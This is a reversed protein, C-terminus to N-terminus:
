FDMEASLRVFRPALMTQPQLWTGGPVFAPNYTLVASSNLVNYVELGFTTRIGGFRLMKGVRLDFQNIRDGYLTGPRILNVTVNAANGALNRGLSPAVEANSATYQAALMQGPKSQMTASVQVDLRPILYTVLGRFQTLVGYAVRCYPSTPTVASANLGPGFASTGTTTTALEPVSARVACNDSVSQGTSTGGVLEFRHWMRLHLLADVGDFRQRWEGASAADIIRNNVQGVKEPVVDYLGSVVYGGGDPLRPDTPATVSFPTLDAPTLALNDVAFFNQFWRRTYSVSLWSGRGLQQQWTASLNWDSPRVGWGNVVEPGYSNTLVYQGFRANSLAGCLDGGTGRLDQSAPNSLDCDAVYNGNADTWARTVGAPGFPGTTQPLRLTPNTTAYIGSAGAGELYKGLSVRLVTRGSGTVDYAAAGRITVDKYSDVGRTAPVVIPQPLFRSPGLTQSPFWSRAWDFRVAGHLTLRGLRSQQQLYAADTGVRADNVWPSISQTLQNPVGNNVRYTLGQDNTFWTRDDTMLGHHYGVKLTHSGTAYTLVAKWVYSGAHADSFDQSRYVLNPINGNAACGNACQEVVRILGRTPNPVREFNGVGFYTGGYGAELLVRSTVPSSWTVQTVDLRRGLVGVAEPTVRQPESLGATAGTCTRCLAQADWFVSLKNRRTIQWTLRASANEFTRDSYAARAPDPAYLWQSADGAHRNYYINPSELTSGGVRGSAFYWLRDRLIPGGVTSSFDHLHTFPRATTVGQARLAPTVNDSQLAVNSGSALLSGRTANGGSDAVVNMVLGSTESEGLTSDITFTIGSARGVDVVYSAASNGSPPSGVTLGDLTLRGENTRGGHIPFTVTSTNVVIGNDSTVVGPILPLLANYSRATPLNRILEGSVVVDRSASAADVMPTAGSVTVDLRVPEVTMAANLVVAGPGRLEVGDVQYMQLGDLTFRVSYVGVSLQELHYRGADDTRASRSRELLAPSSAEVVVGPAPNGAPDIVRGALSQAWATEPTLACGALVGSLALRFLSM